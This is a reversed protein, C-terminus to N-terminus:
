TNTCSTLKGTGASGSLLINGYTNIVKSEDPTLRLRLDAGSARAEQWEQESAIIAPELILWKINGLLDDTLEAQIEIETAEWLKIEDQEEVNLLDFECDLSGLAQIEEGEWWNSDTLNAQRSVDDHDRCVAEVAIVKQSQGNSDNTQRYTFLLRSAGDIRAEWVLRSVGKLKKVRLGTDFQRQAIKYICKRVAEAFSGTSSKIDKWVKDQIVFYLSM